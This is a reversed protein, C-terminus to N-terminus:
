TKVKRAGILASISKEPSMLLSRNLKINIKDAELWALFSKQNELKWDGYGPSYRRTIVDGNQQAISEIEKQVIEACEEVAVSGISDMIVARTTDNETLYVDKKEELFAGITVAFGFVMHCGQLLQAIHASHIEFDNNLLVKQSANSTIVEQAIIHKEKILKLALSIEQDIIADVSPQVIGKKLNLGLRKLVKLKSIEM